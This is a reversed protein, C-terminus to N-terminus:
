KKIIRFSSSRKRTTITTNIQQKDNTNNTDTTNKLIINPSINEKFLHNNQLVKKYMTIKKKKDNIPTRKINPTPSRPDFFSISNPSTPSSTTTGNTSPSSEILTTLPSNSLVSHKTPTKIDEEDNSYNNLSNELLDEYIQFTVKNQVNNTIMSKKNREESTLYNQQKQKSPTLQQQEDEKRRRKKMLAAANRTKISSNIPGKSNNVPKFNNTTTIQQGM